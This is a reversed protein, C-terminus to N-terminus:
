ASPCSYNNGTIYAVKEGHNGDNKTFGM